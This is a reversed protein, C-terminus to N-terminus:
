MGTMEVALRFRNATGFRYLYPVVVKLVGIHLLNARSFDVIYGKTQSKSEYSDRYILM